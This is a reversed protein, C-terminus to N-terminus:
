NKIEFPVKPGLELYKKTKSPIELKTKFLIKQVKLSEIEIMKVFFKSSIQSLVLNLEIEM